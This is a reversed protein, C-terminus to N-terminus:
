GFVCVRLRDLCFMGVRALRWTLDRATQPAPAPTLFLSSLVDEGKAVEALVSVCASASEVMRWQLWCVSESVRLTPLSFLSVRCSGGGEEEEEERERGDKDM